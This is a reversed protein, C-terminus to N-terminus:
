ALRVADVQEFTGFRIKVDRYIIVPALPTEAIGNMYGLWTPHFVMQPKPMHYKAAFDAVAVVMANWDDIFEQGSM